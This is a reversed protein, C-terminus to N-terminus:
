KSTTTTTSNGISFSVTVLDIAEFIGEWTVNDTGQLWKRFLDICCGNANAPNDSKIVDLQGSQIGLFIGIEKWHAGYLPLVYRCLEKISPRKNEIYICLYFHFYSYLTIYSVTNMVGLIM